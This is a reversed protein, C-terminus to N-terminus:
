RWSMTSLGQPASALVNGGNSESDRLMNDLDLVSPLEARGGVSDRFHAPTLVLEESELPRGDVHITSQFYSIVEHITPRRSPDQNWCSQMLSWIAETLGWHSWALSSPDPRSPHEGSQVKVMTATDRGQEFFPLNGTFIEYAVCSFAYVDSAKTNRVIEDREIDFLEPAQWRVSGGKSSASSHGTWHLIESDSVASLGFDALCARGCGDVLINAGKLDGHIIDKEHLYAIGSAVDLVVVKLFSQVLSTQYVRIVKLCIAQGLFRGKYIDAFAGAAVPHDEDRHRPYIGTRRSLRQTAVILNNKFKASLGATDLLTQFTDLLRQAAADQFKLIQKYLSVDEFIAALRTVLERIKDLTAQDEVRDGGASSISPSMRKEDTGSSIPLPRSLMMLNTNEQDDRRPPPIFLADLPGQKALVHESTQFNFVTMDTSVTTRSPMFRDPHNELPKPTYEPPAEQIHATLNTSPAEPAVVPKAQTESVTTPSAVKVIDASNNGVTTKWGQGGQITLMVRDSGEKRSAAIAHRVDNDDTIAVDDGEDDQYSIRFDNPDPRSSPDPSPTSSFLPDTMLKGVLQDRLGKYDNARAEIRHANGNPARFKFVYVEVDSSPSMLPSMASKPSSLDRFPNPPSRADATTPPTSVDTLSAISMSMASLDDALVISEITSADSRPSLLIDDTASETPEAKPTDSRGTSELFRGLMPRSEETVDPPAVEQSAAKVQNQSAEALSLINIVALLRGDEEVVPINSRQTDYMKTVADHISMTPRATEPRLIMVRVVSCHLADLGPAIVRLLIDESTLIGTIRPPHRGAGPATPADEMVCIASAENEKMIQAVVRVSTKPGVTFPQTSTGMASALDPLATRERLHTAWAIMAANSGEAGLEATVGAMASILQESATSKRQAHALTEHFVKTLDVVGTVSEDDSCIPLHRFRNTIMLDLADAASTSERAVTPNPTMVQRVITTRPDLGEAIARYVIDKATVIGTLGEEDDIVLICNAKKTACLRSAESITTNEPVTPVQLPRLATLTGKAALPTKRKAITHVPAPATISRKRSQETEVKRRFTEDKQALRKKPEPLRSNSPHSM